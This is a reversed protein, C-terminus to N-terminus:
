LLHVIVLLLAWIHFPSLAKLQMFLRFSVLLIIAGNLILLCGMLVWAAADSMNIYGIVDELHSLFFLVIIFYLAQFVFDLHQIAVFIDIDFLKLLHRLVGELLDHTLITLYEKHLYLIILITLM